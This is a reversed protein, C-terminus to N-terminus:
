FLDNLTYTPKPHTVPRGTVPRDAAQDPPRNTEAKQETAIPRPARSPTQSTDRPEADIRVDAPPPASRGSLISILRERASGPAVPTPVADPDPPNPRGPTTEPGWRRTATRQEPVAPISSLGRLQMRLVGPARPDDQGPNTAADAVTTPRTGDDAHACGTLILASVILGAITERIKAM